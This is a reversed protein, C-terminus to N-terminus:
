NESWNESPPHFRLLVCSLSGQLSNCVKLRGCSPSTGARGGVAQVAGEM